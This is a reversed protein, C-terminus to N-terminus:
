ARQVVPLAAQQEALEVRKRTLLASRLV